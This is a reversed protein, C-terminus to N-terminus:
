NLLNILKDPVYIVKKPTNQVFRKIKEQKLALELAGKEGIGKEAEVKGRFKGNVQIILTFREEKLAEPDYEPWKELFISEKDGYQSYIEEALHPAFPALLKTTRRISYQYLDDNKGYDTISNLLEMLAAIATNYSFREIDESVKKTTKEVAKYLPKNKNAEDLKTNERKAKEYLNEYIRNLFRSSGKLHDEKWDIDSESPGFFLVAVRAADVGIEEIIEDANKMNGKSKSMVEGNADRVMGQNFLRVVPEKVPCYGLKQLFKTIFRMYILHGTAHEAGGIYLDVPLWKKAEGRDFIEGTNEPDLYRLHYWASDVFTDATDPDRQAMGGCKPCTTKMFRSHEALPSRARSIFDVEEPPPLLVPLDEEPVPVIGCKECHIMPIPAGWYRQRGILWDKLRYNISKYGVGKNELLQVIMKSAEESEMGDFEDSNVMVGHGTYAGNEEVNNKPKIVQKIPLNFKKAFEFDRQDHAPVGMIIGTGYSGLVFDAVFVPLAKGTLPHIAKLHTNVGTKERDVITREINSLLLANEAYKGVEKNEKAIREAIGSEPSLCIFTVGYITDPRTTFVEFEDNDEMKFQITAGDNKGIWNRQMEKINEPWEDLTEIDKLLEEAYDTTRVFWQELKRKEVKSHCRWCAGGVVQENALGTKCKPCWNVYAEKRYLLGEKFLQILLWQTWKYYEPDSTIVERKWDYSFGLRKITKRANKINNYTWDRPNLKKKIAAEEAPLGFADWGFPHLLDKGRMKEWRWRLDGFSYNRFHGVHINGSTYPWMEMIYYKDKPEEPTKYLNIDEWEVEWKKEIDEFPYM